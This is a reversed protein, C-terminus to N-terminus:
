DSGELDCVLSFQAPYWPSIVGISAAAHPSSVSVTESRAESPDDSSKRERGAQFSEGSWARTALGGFGAGTVPPLMM